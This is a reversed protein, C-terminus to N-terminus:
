TSERALLECGLLNLRTSEEEPEIEGLAELIRRAALEGIAQAPPRITTLSPLLLHSFPYDGFGMLACQRPVSMGLRQAALLAGAALNDNAFVIADARRKGRGAPV